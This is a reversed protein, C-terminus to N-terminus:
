AQEEGVPVTLKRGLYEATEAAFERAIEAGHGFLFREYEKLEREVLAFSQEKKRGITSLIERTKYREKEAYSLVSRIRTLDQAQAAFFPGLTRLDFRQFMNKPPEEEAPAEEERLIAAYYDQVKRTIEEFTKKFNTTFAAAKEKPINPALAKMNELERRYKSVQMLISKVMAHNKVSPSKAMRRRVNEIITKFETQRAANEFSDMEASEIKKPLIDGTCYARQILVLYTAKRVDLVHRSFDQFSRTDFQLSDVFSFVTNLIRRKLEVTGREVSLRLGQLLARLDTETLELYDEFKHHDDIVRRVDYWDGAIQKELSEM